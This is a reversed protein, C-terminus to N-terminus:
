GSGKQQMTLAFKASRLLNKLSSKERRCGSRNTLLLLRGEAPRKGCGLIKRAVIPGIGSIEVTLVGIWLRLRRPCAKNTAPLLRIIETSLVIYASHSSTVPRM